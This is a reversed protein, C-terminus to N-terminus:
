RLFGRRRPQQGSLVDLILTFATDLRRACKQFDKPGHGTPDAIDRWLPWRGTMETVFEALTYIRPRLMPLRRGADRKQARTMTVLYDAWDAVQLMFVTTQHSRLDVGYDEAAQIAGPIAPMEPKAWLGASRFEIPEPLSCGEARKRALGEAIASRCM